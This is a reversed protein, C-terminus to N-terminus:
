SGITLYPFKKGSLWQGNLFQIGTLVKLNTKRVGFMKVLKQRKKTRLEPADFVDFKNVQM